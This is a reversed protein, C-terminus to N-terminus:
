FLDAPDVDIELFIDKKMKIHPLTNSIIKQLESMKKSRIIIQYRFNKNIKTILCPSAPLMEILNNQMTNIQKNILEEISNIIDIVINEIAGRVVLRIMRSFPPMNLIERFTLEEDYFAEYNHNMAAQISYHDPNITQIVVKGPNGERGARGAVQTILSFARESAKYDPISLFIDADIVGVLKIGPFHLGKAIMQTGVIIDIEKNEIKKFIDNLKSKDKVTDNDIRLIKAFNFVNQIEEEIRQTGAGITKWKKGNCESCKIGSVFVKYGCRHCMLKESSKHYTMNISCRPCEVVKGCESCKLYNSFGRRNQLLVIQNGDKLTKNIMTTLQPTLNKNYMAKSSDITTIQPMSAGGFRKTLCYLKLTNNKTYYWSEISPTASGLVMTANHKKALYFAASRAHFRPSEDSKYAGEHEEDIIILGINDFPAFIASRPGIAIAAKKNLIRLYEGLRYSGTLNSHLVACKSTFREKLRELTQYSLTIEPVLFIVNQGENLYKEILEFYIHTKGSGTVGYLYFSKIDNTIDNLIKETIVKQEESLSKKPKPPIDSDPFYKPRVGSPVMLSIAEGIGCFYYSAIWRAFDVMKQTFITNEDIIRTISRIKYNKSDKGEEVAYGMLKRGRFIVDVRRYLVDELSLEDPIYYSFLRDVPIPLAVNVVKTM